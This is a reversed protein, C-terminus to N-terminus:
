GGGGGSGDKKGKKEDEPEDYEWVGKESWRWDEDRERKRGRETRRKERREKKEQAKEYAVWEKLVGALEPDPRDDTPSRDQPPHQQPHSTSIITTNAGNTRDTTNTVRSRSRSRSMSHSRSPGQAGGMMSTSSISVSAVTGNSARPSHHPHLPPKALVGHKRGEITAQRKEEKWAEKRAKEENDEPSSTRSSKSKLSRTVGDASSSEPTSNKLERLKIVEAGAGAMDQGPDDPNPEPPGGSGPPKAPGPPGQGNRGKKISRWEMGLACFFSVFALGMAAFFIHRCAYNYAEIIQPVYEKPAIETLQTAGEGVIAKPNFGPIHSLKSVLLNTLITQGVSTFVAGGLQQVFFNIAIGTSVDERPLVTQIALGSTQMGFGLGFGSLFQFSVWHSPPSDPRLTTLLGEGISMISPSAIMSPVYYGIKQTIGGSLISSVVLSLVLPLTYIGSKIPDVM